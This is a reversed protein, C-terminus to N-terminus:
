GNLKKNQLYERFIRLASAEGDAYHEFFGRTAFEPPYFDYEGDEYQRHIWEKPPSVDCDLFFSKPCLEPERSEDVIRFYTNEIGIVEYDHGQVLSIHNTTRSVISTVTLM